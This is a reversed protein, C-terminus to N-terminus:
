GSFGPVYPPHALSPLRLGMPPPVPPGGRPVARLAAIVTQLEDADLAGAVANIQAAVEEPAPPPAPVVVVVEPAPPIAPAVAVVPAPAPPPVPVAAAVVPEMELAVAGRAEGGPQLRRIARKKPRGLCKRVAWCCTVVVFALVIGVVLAAVLGAHSTALEQV